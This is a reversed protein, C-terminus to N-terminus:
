YFIKDSSTKFFYDFKIKGKTLNSESFETKFFFITSRKHLHTLLLTYDRYLLTDVPFLIRPTPKLVQTVVKDISNSPRWLTKYVKKSHQDFLVIQYNWDICWVTKMSQTLVPSYKYNKKLLESNIPLFTWQRNSNM